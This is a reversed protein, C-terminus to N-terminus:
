CAAASVTTKIEFCYARLELSFDIPGNGYPDANAPGYEMGFSITDLWYRNAVDRWGYDEQLLTAVADLARGLDVTVTGNDVAHARDLVLWVTGGWPVTHGDRFINNVYVSWAGNGPDAEGNVAYPVSATGVSGSLVARADYGTWVMVELTGNTRCPTKTGSANLWLDYAIDHTVNSARADYATTAVLNAPLSAVKTPLHLASSQPPATKANCQDIGYLVNPYGRVWTNAQATICTADTCPPASPLNGHLELAGAANVAMRVAGASAAAGGLNWENGALQASALDPGSAACGTSTRPALRCAATWEWTQARLRSSPLLSVRARADHVHGCAAASVAIVIAIVAAAVTRGTRGPHQVM